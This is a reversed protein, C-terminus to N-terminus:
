KEEKVPIPQHFLPSPTAELRERIITQPVKAYRMTTDIRTHGLFEKIEQITWGEMLKAIATSHRICEYLRVRPQGIKLTFALDSVKKMVVLGIEQGLTKAKKKWTQMLEELWVSLM